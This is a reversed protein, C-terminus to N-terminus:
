IIYNVSTKPQVIYLSERARTVAVYWCRHEPDPSKHYENFTRQAMDTIICVNDAEGGKVGHITSIKIRPEKLLKEGRRLASLFYEREGDPIRDLAEHWVKDTLLGFDAQLNKLNLTLNEPEKELKTKLGYAVGVKSSMLDYVKAIRHVSLSAGKRLEEWAIIAELSAGEIPSGISSTFVYGARICHANLEELLYVNRALLLWQGKSMDIQTLDSVYEVKGAFKRPRYEKKVRSSIRNSIATAVNWVEDPVRYSQELVIREGGQGMFREVDAGAWTYIAQDDDGAVFCRDAEVSLKDVMDWQITSLDQAEDVILHELKTQPGERVFTDIMDIFDIKSNERKYVRLTDDLQKLEYYYIDEDPYMEWYAKLDMRRSRAMMSMFLLRDGKSLGVITGDDQIGRATLYIGLSKAVTIYDRIGMVENRNIHLQQFALSHLTRFLPLQESSLRFKEMARTKAENAAKRTFTVFCIKEPDVNEGMLGDVVNLLHTTKGTGPPGFILTTKDPQM